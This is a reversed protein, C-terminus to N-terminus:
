GIKKPAAFTPITWIITVVAIILMAVRAHFYALPIAVLYLALSALHKDRTAADERQLNGGHRLKRHIALRLLLFSFGTLLMSAAYLSVSFPDMEKDLVYATCFPLLSLCFLFGLNAYLVVVDAKEIRRVLHQHNIWYIGTFAFSLLYVLLIPTLAILGAAGNEHPVKLELVMITIIVAIVGDSFAELRATSPSEQPM